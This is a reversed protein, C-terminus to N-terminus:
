REQQSLFEEAAKLFAAPQDVFMEHGADPVLWLRGRPLTQAWKRTAELPVHSAAGELVLAPMRLRALLPRFDWDGLSAMTAAEVVLRNRIAAAPIDCRAQAHRLKEATPRALYLGFILDNAERCLAVTDRDDARAMRERIERQRAAGAEGLLSTIKARREDFLAKTPAMPSVLLLRSVREPYKSAYLVALGAGWSLGVLSMREAGLAERIAELDRVHHPATLLAPDTVVESRGSGRQDYMVLTRGEALPDMDTGNGRFNSGPGGHLYVVWRPGAGVKRHFLRVGDAGSLFGESAAPSAPTSWAAHAVAVISLAFLAKM